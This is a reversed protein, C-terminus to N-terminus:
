FFRGFCRDAGAVGDAGAAGAVEAALGTIGHRMTVSHTGTQAAEVELNTPVRLGTGEEAV